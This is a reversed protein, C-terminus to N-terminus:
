PPEDISDDPVRVSLVPVPATRIIRETVSGLLVHDVGRRGHTGMVVLDIDHEQVYEIIARHPAGELVATEVHEIGAREARERVATVTSQGESELAQHVLWTDSDEDLPLGGLDVVYVVHLTADYTRVLDIALDLASDAGSSGDTPVLIREFM